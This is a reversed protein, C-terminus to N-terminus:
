EGLREAPDTVSVAQYMGEVATVKAGDVAARTWGGTMALVAVTNTGASVNLIVVAVIPLVAVNKPGSNV